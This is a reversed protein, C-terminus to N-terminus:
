AAGKPQFEGCWDDHPVMPFASIIAANKVDSGDTWALAVPGRPANKRCEGVGEM